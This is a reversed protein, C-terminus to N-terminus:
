EMDSSIYEIWETLKIENSEGDEFWNEKRTIYLNYGVTKLFRLHYFLM